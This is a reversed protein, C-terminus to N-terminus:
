WFRWWARRSPTSPKVLDDSVVGAVSATQHGEQASQHPTATESPHAPSQLARITARAESLEAALQRNEALVAAREDMARELLRTLTLLAQDPLAGQASSPQHGQASSQAYDGETERHGQDQTIMRLPQDIWVEWAMGHQTSVQRADLEGRKIRRRLTVVSVGLLQAAQSLPFYAGAPENIM